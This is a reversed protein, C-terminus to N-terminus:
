AMDIRLRGEERLQLLRRRLLDDGGAVAAATGAAAAASAASAPLEGGLRLVAQVVPRRRRDFARLAALVEREMDGALSALAGRLKPDVAAPASAAAAAAVRQTAPPRLAPHDAGAATPPRPSRGDDYEDDDDDDSAASFGDRLPPPPPPPPTTGDFSQESIRPQLNAPMPSYSPEDPFFQLSDVNRDHFAHASQPLPPTKALVSQVMEPRQEAHREGQEDEPERDGLDLANRPAIQDDQWDDAEDPRRDEAYNEYDYDDRLQWSGKTEDWDGKGMNEHEYGDKEVGRSEPPVPPAIHMSRTAKMTADMDDYSGLSSAGDDIYSRQNEYSRRNHRSRITQSNDVDDDTLGVDDEEEELEFDEDDDFVDRAKEEIAKEVIDTLSALGPNNAIFPDEEIVEPAKSGAKIDRHIKMRSHLYSLGRLVDYSVTAIQDETLTVDCLNMIDAVSGAACHEMVIWLENGKIYSGYCKVVFPSDCEIMMSIEKVSEELDNDIPIVKIACVTSTRRHRAKHVSGYSGEGLKGLLEFVDTPESDLEDDTLSLVGEADM